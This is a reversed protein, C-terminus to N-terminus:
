RMGEELADLQENIYDIARRNTINRVSFSTMAYNPREVTSHTFMFWSNDHRQIEIETRVDDSVRRVLILRRDLAGPDGHVRRWGDGWSEIEDAIRELATPTYTATM